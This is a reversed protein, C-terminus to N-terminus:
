LSTHCDRHLSGGKWAGAWVTRQPLHLYLTRPPFGFLPMTSSESAHQVEVRSHGAQTLCVTGAAPNSNSSSGLSGRPLPPSRHSSSMSRRCRRGRTCTLRGQRERHRRPFPPSPAPGGGGAGAQGGAVEAREPGRRWGRM